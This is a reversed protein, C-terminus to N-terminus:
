IDIKLHTPSNGFMTKLFLSINIATEYSFRDKSQSYLTISKGNGLLCLVLADKFSTNEISEAYDTDRFYTKLWSERVRFSHIKDPPFVVIMKGDMGKNIITEIEWGVYKSRGSVIVICRSKTICDRVINQWTDIDATIKTAGHQAKSESPNAIAILPGISQFSTLMTKELTLRRSMLYIGYFPSFLFGWSFKTKVGDDVFSRLFLIPTRTDGKSLSESDLQFVQKAKSLLHMSYICMQIASFYVAFIVGIYYISKTGSNEVTILVPQMQQLLIVVSYLIVFLLFIFVSGCMLYLGKNRVAFASNYADWNKRNRTLLDLAKIIKLIKAYTFKPKVLVRAFSRASVYMRWAITILILLITSFILLEMPSTFDYDISGRFVTTIIFFALFASMMFLSISLFNMFVLEFYQVPKDILYALVIYFILCEFLFVLTLKALGLEELNIRTPQAGIMLLLTVGLVVGALFVLLWIRVIFTFRIASVLKSLDIGTNNPHVKKDKM